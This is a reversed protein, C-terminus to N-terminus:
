AAILRPIRLATDTGYGADMLVVGRPLRSAVDGSRTLGM